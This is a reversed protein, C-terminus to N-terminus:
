AADKAAQRRKAMYDRMYDRKGGKRALEVGKVTCAHTCYKQHRVPVFVKECVPCLKFPIPDMTHLLLFLEFLLAESGTKPGTAQILSGAPSLRYSSAPFHMPPAEVEQWRVLGGIVDRAISHAKVLGPEVWSTDGKPTHRPRHEYLHQRAKQRIREPLPDVSAEAHAVSFCLDRYDDRLQERADKPLADLTPLSALRAFFEAIARQYEYM